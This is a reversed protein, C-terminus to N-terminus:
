MYVYRFLFCFIMRLEELSCAVIERLAWKVNIEMIREATLPLRIGTLIDTKNSNNCGGFLDSNSHM